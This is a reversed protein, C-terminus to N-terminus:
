WSWFEEPIDIIGYNTLDEVNEVDGIETCEFSIERFKYYDSANDTPATSIWVLWRRGDVNKLIKPQRNCLFALVKEIYKTRELDNTISDPDCVDPYFSATVSITQYNANSNSVITPYKNYLTEVVTSPVNCTVNCSGDTLMTTYYGTSDGILLKEMSITVPDSVYYSYAAGEKTVPVIAYVYDGNGPTIDIGSINCDDIDSVEKYYISTWDFDTSLKRRVIIGSLNEMSWALNGAHTTEDFDCYGITEVTWKSPVEYSPAIENGDGDHIPQADALYMEDFMTNKLEIYNIDNLYTPTLSASQVEACLINAGTLFFM